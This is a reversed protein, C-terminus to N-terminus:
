LPRHIVKVEVSGLGGMPDFNLTISGQQKMDFAGVSDLVRIMAHKKQFQIFLKADEENLVITTEIMESYAVLLSARCSIM